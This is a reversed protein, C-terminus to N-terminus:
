LLTAVPAFLQCGDNLFTESPAFRSYPSERPAGERQSSESKSRPEGPFERLFDAGGVVPSM